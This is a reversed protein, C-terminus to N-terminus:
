KPNETPTQKGAQTGTHKRWNYEDSKVYKNQWDDWKRKPHKHLVNGKEDFIEPDKGILFEAISKLLGM